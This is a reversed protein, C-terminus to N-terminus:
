DARRIFRSYVILSLDGTESAISTQPRTNDARVHSWNALSLRGSPLCLRVVLSCVGESPQYVYQVEQVIM